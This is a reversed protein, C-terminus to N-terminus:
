IYLQLNWCGMQLYYIVLDSLPYSSLQMSFLKDVWENESTMEM